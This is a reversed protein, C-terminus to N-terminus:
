PYEDPENGAAYGMVARLPLLAPTGGLAAYNKLCPASPAKPPRRGPAAKDIRTSGRYPPKGGPIDMTRM